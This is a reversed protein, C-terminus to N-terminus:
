TIPYGMQWRVLIALITLIIVAMITGGRARPSLAFGFVAVLLAIPGMFLPKNWFGVVAITVAAGNLIAIADDKFTEPEPYYDQQV